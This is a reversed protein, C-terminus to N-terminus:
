RIGVSPEGDLQIEIHKTLNNVVDYMSGQMSCGAAKKHGGGGFYAAIEAVNVRDGSRMSVKWEHIGSEYLLIAVDIGRVSKLQDIIGSLDKTDVGYFDLDKRRLASFVVRGDMVMMSELLARGLIQTQLYSRAYFSESVIRTFPIGKEMLAGALEMTHRSTCDYRFVGTDHVMGTYLAEAMEKTLKDTGLLDAVLESASSAHPDIMEFDAVLSHTLHHDICVTRKAKEFLSAFEGMRHLDGCDLCFFVDYPEDTDIKHRITDTGAIFTLGAPIEELYVDVTLDPYYTRLFAALGMTSGVCDGDPHIHGSIGVKHVGSLADNLNFM